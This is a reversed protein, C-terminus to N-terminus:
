NRCATESNLIAASVERVIDGAVTHILPMGSDATEVFSVSLREGLKCDAAVKDSTKDSAITNLSTQFLLIKATGVLPPMDGRYHVISPLLHNEQADPLTEAVGSRVTAILSNTTGLDM